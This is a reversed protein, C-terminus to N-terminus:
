LNSRVLEKTLYNLVLFGKSTARLATPMEELFGENKLSKLRNLDLVEELKLGTIDLFLNKDLGQRLRLGTIVLEEAREFASLEEPDFGYQLAYFRGQHKLRGHASQGIGIYDGGQWYVKNHASEYAVPAYNSVEYFPYGFSETLANTAQYMLAATKDDPLPLNRKAFPTNEEITLQYLSLHKFGLQVAQELEQAWSAPTQNPRAYILDMSHNDFTKLVNEIAHLAQKLTHTRGLARLDADNLAQVGLSLRNIGANHLASFMNPYETNPNAELSMEPNQAYGWLNGITELILAVYQPEILSPTGGGFFVSSIKREPLLQHYNKLAELYTQVVAQQDVNKEVKKFFDCYPCKSKCWPWHIYIALKPLMLSVHM